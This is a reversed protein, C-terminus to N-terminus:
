SRLSESRNVGIPSCESPYWRTAPMCTARSITLVLMTIAVDAPSHLPLSWSTDRNANETPSGGHTAVNTEGREEGSDEAQGECDHPAPPAPIDFLSGSLGGLFREPHLPGTRFPGDLRLP